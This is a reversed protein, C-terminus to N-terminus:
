KSKRTGARQTMLWETVEDKVWRKAGGVLIPKPFGRTHVLRDRTSRLSMQVLDAIDHVTMLEV